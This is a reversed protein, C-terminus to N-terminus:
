VREFAAEPVLIDFVVCGVQYLTNAIDATLRKKVVSVAVWIERLWMVSTSVKNAMSFVKATFATTVVCCVRSEAQCTCSSSPFLSAEPQLQSLLSPRSLQSLRAALQSQEQLTKGIVLLVALIAQLLAVIATVNMRKDVEDEKGTQSLVQMFMVGDHKAVVPETGPDIKDYLKIRTKNEAERLEREELQIDLGNVKFKYEDSDNEYTEEKYDTVENRYDDTNLDNSLVIKKGFLEDVDFVDDKGNRKVVNRKSHVKVDSSNDALMKIEVKMAKVKMEKEVAVENKGNMLEEDLQKLKQLTEEFEDDEPPDPLNEILLEQAKAADIMAKRENRIRAVAKETIIVKDRWKKDEDYSLEARYTRLLREVKWKFMRLLSYVKRGQNLKLYVKQRIEFIEDERKKKDFIMKYVKVIRETLESIEKKTEEEGNVSITSNKKLM